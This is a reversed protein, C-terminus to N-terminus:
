TFEAAPATTPYWAMRSNEVFELFRCNEFHYGWNSNVRDISPKKMGAAGDRDWMIKVQALTLSCTIGKMYYHWFNPGEPNTDNCRRRAWELHRVYPKSKKYREQKTMLNGDRRATPAGGLSDVSESVRRSSKNLPAKAPRM